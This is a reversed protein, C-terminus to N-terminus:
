LGSIRQNEPWLIEIGGEVQKVKGEQELRKIVRTVVERATGLEAAIQKHKLALVKEGRLRSKEVLYNFLRTDLRGFLLHNITDLLEAYRLNYQQYFLQNIGPFQKVWQGVKDVPLLLVVSDEETIAVIRSPENKLSASFSMICSEGPQIYYLLLEKEEFSVFVKILGKLVIPIVKVYQGDRLLVTNAPVERIDAHEELASLLDAGLFKIKEHFDNIQM